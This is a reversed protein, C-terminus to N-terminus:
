IPNRPLKVSVNFDVLKYAGDKNFVSRNLYEKQFAIHCIYTLHSIQIQIGASTRKESHIKVNLSRDVKEFYIKANM